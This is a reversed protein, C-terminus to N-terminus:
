GQGTKIWEELTPPPKAFESFAKWECLATLEMGGQIVAVRKDSSMVVVILNEHQATFRLASNFRAGRSRDEGPIARGDLLCAFAHLHLDARIHLAGDVKALSKALDFLHEQQLDIPNEFKQGSTELPHENFDLILTCGYKLEGAHRIIRAAIIFMAHHLSPDLRSEILAEELAVLKPARTSSNFSGDSFSCVFEGALRLFGHAGRFEGTIRCPPLRGSAVGLVSKGDSIVVRDSEESAILLKRVHKFNKLSPREFRPFRVIFDVTGLERPEVFVLSGRPWAGEEQTKSIGLIADLIPYVEMQTDWGFMINLEDRIHDRVAHTKYERIVYRSSGLYLADENAFDHSLLCAAHELWRETPGISCMDPHHETFWMQYFISHTRGGYSILGALRLNKEPFIHRLSKLNEPDPGERRWRDSNLYLDRLKPEHGELLNQPDYVRIPDDPKETYILSARSAGSFHSLGECLGDVIRFICLNKSSNNLM